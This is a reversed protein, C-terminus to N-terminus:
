IIVSAKEIPRIIHKGHLTYRKQRIATETKLGDKNGCRPLAMAEMTAMDINESNYLVFLAVLIDLFSRLLLIM